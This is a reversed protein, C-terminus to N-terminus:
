LKIVLEETLVKDGTSSDIRVNGLLTITKELRDYRAARASIKDTVIVGNNPRRVTGRVREMFVADPNGYEQRAIDAHVNFPEGNKDTGYFAANTMKFQNSVIDTMNIASIPTWILERSFLSGAILAAVMVLGWGTFFFQWLRMWRRHKSVIIFNRKDGQMTYLTAGISYFHM